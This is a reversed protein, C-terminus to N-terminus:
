RTLKKTKTAKKPMIENGPRKEADFLHVCWPSTSYDIKKQVNLHMEKM